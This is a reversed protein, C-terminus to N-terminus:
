KGYSPYVVKTEFLQVVYELCDIRTEEETDVDKTTPEPINLEGRDYRVEVLESDYEFGVDAREIFYKTRDIGLDNLSSIETTLDTRDLLPIITEIKDAEGQRQQAKAEDMQKLERLDDPGMRQAAHKLTRFDFKGEPGSIVLEDYQDAEDFFDWLPKRRVSLSGRIESKEPMQSNIEEIIDRADIRESEMSILFLGSEARYEFQGTEDQDRGKWDTFYYTFQGYYRRQGSYPYEDIKDSPYIHGPDEPLDFEVGTDSRRPNSQRFLEDLDEARGLSDVSM